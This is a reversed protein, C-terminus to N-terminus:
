RRCRISGSCCVRSASSPPAQYPSWCSWIGTQTCSEGGIEQPRNGQPQNGQPRNGQTLMVALGGCVVAAAATHGSPARLLSPGCAFEVLKLALMLALTGGVAVAWALAGRRWGLAYLAITVGVALPLVVAEDAFNTLFNM